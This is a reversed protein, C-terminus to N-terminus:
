EKNFIYKGLHHYHKEDEVLLIRMTDLIFFGGSYHLCLPPGVM